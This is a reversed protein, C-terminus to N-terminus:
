GALIARPMKVCNRLLLSLLTFELSEPLPALDFLPVSFRLFPLSGYCFCDNRCWSWTVATGSVSSEIGNQRWRDRKIFFIARSALKAVMRFKGKRRFRACIRPPTDRIRPRKRPQLM